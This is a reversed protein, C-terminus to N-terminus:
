LLPIYPRNHMPMGIIGELNLKDRSFTRSYRNSSESRIVDPGHAGAVHEMDPAKHAALVAVGWLM